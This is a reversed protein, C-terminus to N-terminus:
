PEMSTQILCVQLVLTVPAEVLLGHQRARLLLAARQGLGHLSYSFTTQVEKCQSLVGDRGAVCTAALAARSQSGPLARSVISFVQFIV